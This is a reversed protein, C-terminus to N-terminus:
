RHPPQDFCGVLPDTEEYDRIGSLRALLEHRQEPTWESVAEIRVSAVDACDAM